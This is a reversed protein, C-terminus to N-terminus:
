KEMSKRMKGPVFVGKMAFEILNCRRYKYYNKVISLCCTKCVIEVNIVVAPNKLDPSIALKKGQILELLAPLLDDRKLSHNNRIKFTLAYTSNEENVTAFFNTVLTDMCKKIDEIFPKCTDMVPLMRLLFKTRQTRTKEIENLIAYMVACPDELKTRIFLCNRVGSEVVQFRREKDKLAEVEKKLEEEISINDSTACADEASEPGYLKDAFENLLDYAERICNREKNNNCTVIFGRVGPTLEFNRKQRKNKQIYFNKSRKKGQTVAGGNRKDSM